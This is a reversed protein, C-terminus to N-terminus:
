QQSSPPTSLPESKVRVGRGGPQWPRRFRSPFSANQTMPFTPPAFVHSDTSIRIIRTLVTMQTACLYNFSPAVVVLLTKHGMTADSHAQLQPLKCCKRLGGLQIQPLSSHRLSHFRSRLSCFSFFPLRFFPSPLPVSHLDAVSRPYSISCVIYRTLWL